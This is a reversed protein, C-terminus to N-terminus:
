PQFPHRNYRPHRIRRYAHYQFTGRDVGPWIVMPYSIFDHAILVPACTQRHLRHVRTLIRHCAQPSQTLWCYLERENRVVVSTTVTCRRPEPSLVSGIWFAHFYRIEPDISEM